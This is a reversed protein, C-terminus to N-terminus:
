ELPLPGPERLAHSYRRPLCLSFNLARALGHVCARAWRSQGHKVSTVALPM